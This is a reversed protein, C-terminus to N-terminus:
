RRRRCAVREYQGPAVVSFVVMVTVPVAGDADPSVLASARSAGPCGLLVRRVDRGLDPVQDCVRWPAARGRQLAGVQGSRLGGVHLGPRVVLLDLRHGLREGDALVVEVGVDVGPGAIDWGLWHRPKWRM